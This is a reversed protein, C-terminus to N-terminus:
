PRYPGRCRSRRLKAIAQSVGAFGRLRRLHFRELRDRHLYVGASHLLVGQEEEIRQGPPAFRQGFDDYPRIQLPLAGHVQGRFIAPANRQLPPGRGAHGVEERAKGAHHLERGAAVLHKLQRVSFRRDGIVYTSKQLIDSAPKPMEDNFACSPASNKEPGIPRTAM